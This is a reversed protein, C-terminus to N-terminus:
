VYCLLSFFDTFCFLFIKHEILLTFYIIATMPLLLDSKLVIVELSVMKMKHKISRLTYM